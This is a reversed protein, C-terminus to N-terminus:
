LCTLDEKLLFSGSVMALALHLEVDGCVGRHVLFRGGPPPPLSARSPQKMDQKERETTSLQRAVVRGGGAGAVGLHKAIGWLCKQNGYIFPNTEEM